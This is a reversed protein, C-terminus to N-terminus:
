KIKTLKTLKKKQKETEKEKRKEERRKEERRKEEKSSLHLTPKILCFAQNFTKGDELYIKKSVKKPSHIKLISTM